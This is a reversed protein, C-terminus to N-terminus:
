STVTNWVNAELNWTGTGRFNNIIMTSLIYGFQAVYIHICENYKQMGWKVQHKYVPVFKSDCVLSVVSWVSMLYIKGQTENFICWSSFFTEFPFQRIYHPQYKIDCVLKKYSTCNKLSVTYIKIHADHLTSHIALSTNYNFKVSM